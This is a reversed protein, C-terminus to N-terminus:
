GSINSKTMTSIFNSAKNFTVIKIHISWNLNEIEDEYNLLYFVAKLKKNELEFYEEEIDAKFKKYYDDWTSPMSFKTTYGNLNFKNIAEMLMYYDNYREKLEQKLIAIRNTLERINLQSLMRIKKKDHLDDWLFNYALVGKDGESINGEEELKSLITERKKDTRKKVPEQNDLEKYILDKSQKGQMSEVNEGQMIMNGHGTILWTPNIEPYVSLISELKDSGISNSKGILSHSIGVKSAFERKSIRKYDIFQIIRDVTTNIKKDM